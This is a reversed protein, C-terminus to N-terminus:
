NYKKLEKIEQGSRYNAIIALVGLVTSSITLIWNQTAESIGLLDAAGTFKEVLFTIIAIVLSINVTKRLTKM